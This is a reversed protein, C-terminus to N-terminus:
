ASLAEIAKKTVSYVFVKIETDEFAQEKRATLYGENVLMKLLPSITKRRETNELKELEDLLERRTIGNDYKSAIKLVQAWKKLNKM